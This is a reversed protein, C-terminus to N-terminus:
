VPAVRLAVARHRKQHERRVEKAEKNEAKFNLGNVGKFGVNYM